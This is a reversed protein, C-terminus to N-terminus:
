EARRDGMRQAAALGAEIWRIRVRAPLLLNLLAAGVRPYSSCLRAARKDRESLAHASSRGLDINNRERDFQSLGLKLAKDGELYLENIGRLVTEYHEAHRLQAEPLSLRRQTLKHSDREAVM